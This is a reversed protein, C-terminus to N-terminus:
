SECIASCQAVFVATCIQIASSINHTYHSNQLGLMLNFKEVFNTAHKFHADTCMVKCAIM